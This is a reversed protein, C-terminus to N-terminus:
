GSETVSLYRNLIEILGETTVFKEGHLGAFGQNLIWGNEIRKITYIIEIDAM